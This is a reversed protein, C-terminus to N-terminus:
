TIWPGRTWGDLDYDALCAQVLERQRAVIGRNQSFRLMAPHATVDAVREGDIWVERGDLLSDLYAEGTLLRDVTQPTV